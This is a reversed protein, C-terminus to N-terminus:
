PEKKGAAGAPADKGALAPKWTAKPVIAPPMPRKIEDGVWVALHYPKDAGTSSVVMGFDGQTRFSIRARGDAGTSVEREAKNWQTKTVLLKIKVKPNESKLTIIVPQTVILNSAVYRAAIPTTTGAVYAFKGNQIREIKKFELPKAEPENAAKKTAAIGNGCPLMAATLAVCLWWMRVSTQMM